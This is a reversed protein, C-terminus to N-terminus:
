AILYKNLKNKLKFQETHIQNIKKDKKFYKKNNNM